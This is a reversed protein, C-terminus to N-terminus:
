WGWLTWLGSLAVTPATEARLTRPGLTAFRAGTKAVLDLEAESWGGEPGILVLATTPRSAAAAAALSAEPSARASPEVLMVTVGFEGRGLLDVLTTPGEIVPVVARGCQKASAVAVRHWHEGALRPRKKGASLHATELPVISWAGLMTADRVVADMQQGKLVGVAVTVRVPPEAVPTVEGVLDVSVSSRRVSAVRGAWERGAGDFVRVDAGVGLRLVHVAHHSEDSPLAVSGSGFEAAPVFFRPVSV